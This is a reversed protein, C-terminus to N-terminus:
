GFTIGPMAEIQTLDAAYRSSLEDVEQTAFAAFGRSTKDDKHAGIISKWKRRPLKQGGVYVQQLAELAADTASQNVTRTPERLASGRLDPVLRELLSVSSGRAAYPIVTLREPRLVDRLVAVIAPWGRDMGIYKARLDDFPPVANDEARKRYGSVFLGDYPRVVLLVHAVPGDWAARLVECRAEAMPYFQGKMFHFMRGLINEESLVLPRGQAHDQLTRQARTIVSDAVEMGITGPLRLALDGSPIGDRGPYALGLGAAELAARNDHLCMQLSSTGTRHAGAHVFLPSRTM